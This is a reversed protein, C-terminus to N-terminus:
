FLGRPKPLAPAPPTPKKLAKNKVKVKAVDSKANDASSTVRQNLSAKRSTKGKPKAICRLVAKEGPIQASVFEGRVVEGTVNLGDLQNYRVRYKSGGSHGHALLEDFVNGGNQALVYFKHSKRAPRRLSLSSRSVKDSKTGVGANPGYVAFPNKAVFIDRSSNTDNSVLNTARSKFAICGGGSMFPAESSGDGEEGAASQSVRAIRGTIRDKVYVQDHQSTGAPVLNSARSWFAAFRGDSSIWVGGSSGDSESGDAAVSVRETTGNVRDRVFADYTGNTDGPVLNTSGSRFIVYRGDDSMHHCYCSGDGLMEDTSSSVLEIAGTQRDKVFIDSRNNTDGPVLNTASSYFSVFRGDPTIYPNECSNNAQTGDATESVRELLGTMRDRVFVDRNSGNTDGGPDLNQARSQFVVYRGDPTIFANASGNDGASGDPAQSIWEIAGTQLDKVYVDGDGNDDEPNLNDSGTNFCVYRGDATVTPNGCSDEAESGDAATSALVVAGTMRNKLFILDEGSTGGPILNDSDSQFVVYQGNLSMAPRESYGNGQTGDVAVSVREIEDAAALSISSLALGAMGFRLLRQNFPPLTNKMDNRLKFRACNGAGVFWDWPIFLM